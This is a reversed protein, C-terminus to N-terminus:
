RKGRASVTITASNNSRAPDLSLAGVTATNSISSLRGGTPVNVVLDYTITAGAPMWSVFCSVSGTSGVAPTTCPLTKISSSISAFTTTSPLVDSLTIDTANGPGLNTVAISYTLTRGVQLTTPSASISVAMDALTYSTGVFQVTVNGGDSLIQQYGSRAGSAIPKFEWTFTCKDGPQMPQYLVCEDNTNVPIFDGLGFGYASYLTLPASGANTVVVAQPASTNGLLVSGFDLTDPTVTLEGAMAIYGPPQTPVIARAPESNNADSCASLWAATILGAIIFSSRVLRITAQSFSLM